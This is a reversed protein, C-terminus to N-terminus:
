GVPVAFVVIFLMASALCFAAIKQGIAKTVFGAVLCQLLYYFAFARSALALIEYTSGAWTLAIAAAGILVYVWKASARNQSVEIVNGEAAVMDAVAASFQSMVAATVVAISLFPIVTFGVLAILSNDDFKGNLEHIIPLALTVFVVYVLSSVWQSVKSGWVRDDASYSEGLFRPTEFGQVVILTGAVVTTALWWNEVKMQPLVMGGVSTLSSVDYLAFAVLVLVVLGLTIYLAWQELFNLVELGRLVGVGVILVIIATTLADEAFPSDQGIGTLFFASLIHLYLTISIVYAVVIAANSVRDLLTPLSFGATGLVPEAHVINFRIVAGMAYALAAVVVMAAPMLIGVAHALVPVIVLFGSGFISALPTALVGFPRQQKNAGKVKM